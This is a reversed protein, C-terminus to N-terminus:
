DGSFFHDYGGVLAIVVALAAILTGAQLFVAGGFALGIGLSIAAVIGIGCAVGVLRRWTAPKVQEVSETDTM